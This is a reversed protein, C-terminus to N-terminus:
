ALGMGVLCKRFGPHRRLADWQPAVALDVLCPDRGEIARELHGLAVDLDGLESHFLALQVEPFGSPHSAAQELALRVVAARGGAAYARKMPDLAEAAVGFTAAHKLNEEMHRDFDGIKWYAGALFERALLHASDLEM